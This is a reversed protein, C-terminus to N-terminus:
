DVDHVDETTDNPTAALIEMVAYVFADRATADLECAECWSRLEAGFRGRTDGVENEATGRSVALALAVRELTVFGEGGGLRIRAARLTRAPLGRLFAAALRRVDRAELRSEVERAGDRSM